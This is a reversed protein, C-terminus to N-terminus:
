NRNVIADQKWNKVSAIRSNSYDVENLNKDNWFFWKGIKKGNDYLGISKKSGNEDYLIWQGHVKGNKYFGEQSIKGNDFFYTSKVLDGVIAHQPNTKQAFILSSILLAGCIMFKKM